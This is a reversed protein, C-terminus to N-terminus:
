RRRNRNRRGKGGGWQFMQFIIKDVHSYYAMRWRQNFVLPWVVASLGVFFGTIMSIYIGLNLPFVGNESVNPCSSPALSISNCNIDSPIEKTNCSVNLVVGCLGPNGLFSSESFTLFQRSYPIMGTLKNHSLNLVALFTLDLLQLPINGNLKNNSLDLSGLQTLTGIASPIQGILANHSLNLVYLSELAGITSPIEGELQNGSFDICTFITLIKVLEMQLGKNTVIVTDQYYFRDLEMFEFRLHDLDTKEGDVSKMMGKKNLFWKPPITGTIQNLSLDVIQLKKWRSNSSDGTYNTCSINGHFNNRRLVLVRLNSSNELFCPYNDNMNNNGLNLVELDKCNALSRPVKGGLLNGNLDITKLNCKKPFNGTLNGSLSNNQLNLVGLYMSNEEILCSPMSGNFKNNSLDLVLLYIANCISIPIVGSFRNRALSFFSASTLNNGIEDPLSSELNNSSYDLYVISPPVIPIEGGLRNLHLDLIILSTPIAYPKQMGVLLNSSLNLHRLSSVNWLWNPIEGDIENDSLDLINIRSRNRLNPFQNLKSSALKLVALMPFSDNSFNADISLNNCSLELRTLNPFNTAMEELKLHGSFNNYSLSLVNLSRFQFLSNPIPGQVNNHSLDLTDLSSNPNLFETIQDGFQNNSLQIKQLSPISFLSTPVTGNFMNNRWDINVLKELGDFYSSPVSGSLSNESLDMYTLNKCIQFSPIPGSFSNLSLDLHVLKALKGMSTPIDGSFNCNSLEIRSLNMLKGISDPLRGSFNSYSLKLNQLSSNNPLEPLSGHLNKNNSLDLTQLMPLQFIRAPFTGNLNCSSLRLVTLNRFGVIFDPVPAALNNQDLRIISLFKLNMLSPDIPGTLYCNFMSLVELNPLSTSIAQGWENGTASINMGDLYLEKLVTLNRVLTMLNPNELNLSKLGAFYLSSLDLVILRTLRSLDIPIKGIFGCSSLNLYRLETLNGFGSPFQSLDFRNNALNLQQLFQLSFLSSTQNIGGSIMESSLDLVTVRGNVDCDVGKWQCCDRNQDWSSLKSSPSFTFTLENKLQILSSQQDRRCQGSVNTTTISILLLHLFFSSWSTVSIRM